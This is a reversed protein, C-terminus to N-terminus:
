KCSQKQVARELESWDIVCSHANRDKSLRYTCHFSIKCNFLFFCFVFQVFFGPSYREWIISFWELM